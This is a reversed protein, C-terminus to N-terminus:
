TCFVLHNPRAYAKQQVILLKNIHTFIEYMINPKKPRM